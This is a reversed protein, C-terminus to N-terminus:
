GNSISREFFNAAYDRIIKKTQSNYSFIDICIYVLKELDKKINLNGGKIIKGLKIAGRLSSNDFLEKNKRLGEIFNVIIISTKEDLKSQKMLIEIESQRDYGELEITILRDLLADQSPHVGAYERPNSTLIARFNNSVNIFSQKGRLPPLQLLKEEFISLLINNSEPSSRTFEDYILTYGNKCATTIRNDIWIRKIEEETKHVSQVFNDIIKRNKFGINSGLLDTSNFDENGYILIYPQNLKEALKLALSTKGTGAIGSLHVPFGSELYLLARDMIDQIHNTTVYNKSFETPLNKEM